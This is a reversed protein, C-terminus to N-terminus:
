QLGCLTSSLFNTRLSTPSMAVPTLITGSMRVSGSTLHWTTLHDMCVCFLAFSREVYSCPLCNGLNFIHCFYLDVGPALLHDVMFYYGNDSLHDPDLELESEYHFESEAPWKNIKWWKNKMSAECDRNTLYFKPVSAKVFKEM